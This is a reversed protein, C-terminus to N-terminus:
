PPGHYPQSSEVAIAEELFSSFIITKGAGTPASILVSNKGNRLADLASDKAEKQFWYLPFGSSM